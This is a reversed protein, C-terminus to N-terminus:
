RGLEELAEEPRTRTPCILLDPLWPNEQNYRLESGDIRSVHLGAAHHSLLPRRRIGSTSDARMRM